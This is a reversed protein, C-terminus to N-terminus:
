TWSINGMIGVEGKGITIDAAPSVLTHSYEGAAISIAESIRSPKLVGEPGGDRLMMSRLEAEVAYRVAATDPNLRIQFNVAHAKPAFVYIDAGAVPALPEIYAKVADVTAADPIPNILDSNAVMVGVTGRGSWHRYTWARTIGAVEKAWVEYDGDAGGQPIWYWREIVRARWVELDEVDAGGQISDAVGASALGTIPSTLRMTLGDDTNGAKGATDCIVPVRIIGGSPSASATVTYSTLDDRQIIAGARITIDSTAVEWRVYGTAHTAAKRPCRKMNAHRTLWDEDSLDPLLNRALYDIYGYVTHVAAAQVRGYVEADTRRLAALTPDATLRTLIDNRITTILQPLTPRTFGSDAM